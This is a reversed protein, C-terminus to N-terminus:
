CGAGGHQHTPSPSGGLPVCLLGEPGETVRGLAPGREGASPSTRRGGAGYRGRCRMPRPGVRLPPELWGGVRGHPVPWKWVADTGEKCLEPKARLHHYLEYESAKM